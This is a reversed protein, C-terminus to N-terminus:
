AIGPLRRYNLASYICNHMGVRDISRRRVYVGACSDLSAASIHVDTWASRARQGPATGDEFVSSVILPDIGACVSGM